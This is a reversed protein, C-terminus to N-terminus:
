DIVTPTVFILLERRSQRRTKYGLLPGILPIHSLFPLGRESNEQNTEYIGGLVITQGSKLTVTTKMQRTRITPVGLVLRDSPRDQNIHLQLSLHDHPLVKPLVKLGLVAKKFVMATGGSESTEQYPVEEGAEISAPQQNTTFLSPSSILRAHGEEELAALRVDLGEKNILTTLPIGKKVIGSFDVGLKQQFDNDVSALRVEIRIQKVPIDLQRIIKAANNIAPLIDRIIIRNTRVDVRLKGRKSLLSTQKDRILGAIDQANAYHIQWSELMLPLSATLLSQWKNSDQQHKILTSQPAIYIVSGRQQKALRYATLLTDLAENLLIGKLHLSIEGQVAPSIIINQNSLKTIYHIADHIDVNELDINVFSSKAFCHTQIFLALISIIIRVFM